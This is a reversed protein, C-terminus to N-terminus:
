PLRMLMPDPRALYYMNKALKRNESRLFNLHYLSGSTWHLYHGRNTHFTHNTCYDVLTWHNDQYHLGDSKPFYRLRRHNEVPPMFTYVSMTYWDYDQPVEGRLVEDCDIIFLTDNGNAAKIYENRKQVEDDWIGKSIIKAGHRELIETSGDTSLVDFKPFHKILGDVAFIGDVKGEISPLMAELWPADNYYIVCAKTM